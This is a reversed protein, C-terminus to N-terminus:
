VLMKCAIVSLVGGRINRQMPFLSRFASTQSWVTEGDPFAATLAACSYNAHRSIHYFMRDIEVSIRNAKSAAKSNLNSLSPIITPGPRCPFYSNKTQELLPSYVRIVAYVGWKSRYLFCLM